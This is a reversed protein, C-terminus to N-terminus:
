ATPPNPVNNKISPLQVKGLATLNAALAAFDFDINYIYDDFVAPIISNADATGRKVMKTPTPTTPYSQCGAFVGAHLTLMKSLNRAQHDGLSSVLLM